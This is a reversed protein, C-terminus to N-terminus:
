RSQTEKWMLFDIETKEKNMETSSDNREVTWLM